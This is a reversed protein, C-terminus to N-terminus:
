NPNPLCACAHAHIRMYGFFMRMYMRMDTQSVLVFCLKFVIQDSRISGQVTWTSGLDTQTSGLDAQTSGQDTQTSNLDTQTLFFDRRKRTQMQVALRDQSWQNIAPLAPILTRKRTV